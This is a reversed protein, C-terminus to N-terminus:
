RRGGLQWFSSMCNNHSYPEKGFMWDKFNMDIGIGDSIM